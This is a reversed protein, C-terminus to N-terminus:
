KKTGKTKIIENANSDDVIVLSEDEYKKVAEALEIRDSGVYFVTISGERQIMEYPPESMKQMLLVDVGKELLWKVVASGQSAENKEIIIEGDESIFAFWKAKGFLPAVASNEKNLKIPVAIM